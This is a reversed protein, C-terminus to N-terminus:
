LPTGEEMLQEYELLDGMDEDMSETLESLIVDLIVDTVIQRHLSRVPASQLTQERLRQVRFFQHIFMEIMWSDLLRGSLEKELFCQGQSAALEVLHGMLFVDLLRKTAYHSVQALQCAATESDREALVSLAVERAEQAVVEPLLQAELQAEEQAARAVELLLLALTESLVDSACHHVAAQALHTDVLDKVSTRIVEASVDHLVEQLLEDLVWGSLPMLSEVATASGRSGIHRSRKATDKAAHKVSFGEILLDPILEDCLLERILSNVFQQAFAKNEMFHLAAAHDQRERQARQRLTSQALGGLRKETESQAHEPSPREAVRAAAAEHKSRGDGPHHPDRSRVKRRQDKLSPLYTSTRHKRRDKQNASPSASVFSSEGTSAVTSLKQRIRTVSEQLEPWSKEVKKLAM